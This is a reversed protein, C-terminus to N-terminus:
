EIFSSLLQRVAGCSNIGFTAKSNEAGVKITIAGPPMAEFTDEDTKDDGIALIFAAPNNRLYEKSAKGKNIHISKIEIVKNGELIQLEKDKALYQLRSKIESARILGLTIEVDRYHWAISFDKVEIFSGPTQEQYPKIVAIFEEMWDKSIKKAVEWQKDRNRKWAGHEAIIDIKMESFWNELDGKKRGSIIIIKNKKDSSLDKILKLLAEDPFAKEPQSKFPVLTGDYDLFLIRSSAEKYKTIFISKQQPTVNKTSLRKQKDKLADLKSMYSNVWFHIDYTKVTKQLSSMREKIEKQDMKLATYLSKSVANIDTPNIIISEILEKSAGAMESLILVGDINNRSAVYEKSVLNMGDRLPTVLAIDALAYLASLTSLPFSRYLYYIPQWSITGQKANIDSVLRDIEQKLHKYQNVQDRSPVILQFFVVKEKFEKYNNLFMNYASLRQTIGKSYDLRDISIILKRNNILKKLKNIQNETTKKLALKAYKEYDIGMPFAEALVIRCDMNIETGNIPVNIIRKVTSLFHRVDDYTHFGILDAGLLGNILEKRWPLLRFLEFSPFPIHQFYGITLNPNQERIMAPVLMLQYDQIWINDGNEAIKLVADAFKKNVAYYAEWEKFNYHVYSPFYHFLPWLTQNSFGHYYDTIENKNLWVPYLKETSLHNAIERKEKEDQIEEGIWGLWVNNGEKYFSGLGTALGGESNTYIWKKNQRKLKLPLRNSVIITKTNKISTNNKINEVKM